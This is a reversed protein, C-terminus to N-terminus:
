LYQLYQLFKALNGIFSDKCMGDLQLLLSSSLSCTSCALRKEQVDHLAAQRVNIMVYNENKGGNPETKDWNKYQVDSNNNMNLYVGESNQDTLPTWVFPCNGGTTKQHWAVYRLFASHNEPYPIIGNNLKEECVDLSDNLTIESPIALSYYEYPACIVEEYEEIMLWNSGVVDWIKPNWSLLSGQREKCPAASIETVDGEKFVQINAVSGRFQSKFRGVGINMKLRSPMNTINKGFAKGFLVGDVAFQIEEKSLDIMLCIHYWHDLKPNQLDGVSYFGGDWDVSLKVAGWRPKLIVSLWDSSDEGLISYFGVRDFSAEKSSSCIIFIEPLQVDSELSAFSLTESPNLLDDFTFVPFAEVAILDIILILAISLM